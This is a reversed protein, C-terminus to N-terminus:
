SLTHIRQSTFSSAQTYKVTYSGACYLSLKNSHSPTLFPLVTKTETEPRLCCASFTEPSYLCILSFFSIRGFRFYSIPLCTCKIVVAALITGLLILITHTRTRLVKIRAYCIRLRNKRIKKYSVQLPSGISHSCDFLSRNEPHFLLLFFKEAFIKFHQQTLM